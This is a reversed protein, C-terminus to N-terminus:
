YLGDRVEFHTPKNLTRGGKRVWDATWKLIQVFRTGPRGLTSCIRSPDGILATPAESDAFLPATCMHEALEVAVSRLSYVQPQCLNFRAPPSAVLSLSRIIMENADGQWICNFYGNALSIAEGRLIKTAIDVLVGYRLEVAYFLRILAIHTHNKKSYYEFIRERAVVANPYEGIPTLPDEEQSGPTNVNSLPYVNGSSLAVIKSGAYRESVHAPPITNMAWTTAPNESTGFKLGALYIINSSDPLADVDARNLLDASHTIVGRDELWAKCEPDTFRSVAIVDLKHHAQDAARKALAALTPGMKGGAGLVVLPSAVRPIFKVLAPAPQTLVDELEEESKIELPLTM